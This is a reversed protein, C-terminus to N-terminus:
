IWSIGRDFGSIISEIRNLFETRQVKGISIQLAEQHLVQHQLTTAKEQHSIHKTNLNPLAVKVQCHKDPMMRIVSSQIAQM